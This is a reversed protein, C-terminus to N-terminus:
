DAWDTIKGNHTRIISAGHLSIPVNRSLGGFLPEIVVTHLIWPTTVCDGSVFSQETELTSEPYLERSKQFFEALRGRDTFELGIGWDNFHVKEAFFATAEWIEGKTLHSLVQSVVDSRVPTELQITHMQIEKEKDSESM